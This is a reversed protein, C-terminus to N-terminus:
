ALREPGKAKANDAFSQEALRLPILEITFDHKSANPVFGFTFCVLGCQAVDHQEAAKACVRSMSILCVQKRKM